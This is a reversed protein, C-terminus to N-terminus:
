PEHELSNLLSLIRQFARIEGQLEAQKLSDARAAFFESKRHAHDFERDIERRLASVTRRHRQEVRSSVAAQAQFSERLRNYLLALDAISFTDNTSRADGFHVTLVPAEYYDVLFEAAQGTELHVIEMDIHHGVWSQLAEHCDVADRCRRLELRVIPLADREHSEDSSRM